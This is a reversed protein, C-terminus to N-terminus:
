EESHEEQDLESLKRRLIDREEKSLKEVRNIMADAVKESAKHKLEENLVKGQDVTLEGKKVLEDIMEKSKEATLAAAGIGLLLFKKINDSLQNM